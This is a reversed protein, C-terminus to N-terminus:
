EDQLVFVIWFDNSSRIFMLAATCQVVTYGVIPYVRQLNEDM